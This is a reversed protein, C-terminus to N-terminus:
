SVFSYSEMIEPSKSSAIVDAGATLIRVAQDYTSIGGIAKIKLRGAILASLRKVLEPSAKGGGFGSSNKIYDIGAEACLDIAIPLEEETLLDVEIIAKTVRGEAAKVCESLHRRYESYMNSKLWGLKTAFDLEHVGIKRLEETAFVTTAITDLSFPFDVGVCVKCESGKLRDVAFKAWLPTVAVCQFKYNISENLLQEIDKKTADRNVNSHQIRSALTQLDM